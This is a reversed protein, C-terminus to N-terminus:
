ILLVLIFNINLIKEESVVSVASGPDLINGVSLSITIALIAVYLLVHNMKALFRQGKFISPDLKPTPNLINNILRIIIIYFVTLGLTVHIDEITIRQDGFDLDVLYFGLPIQIFLIAASLWHLM